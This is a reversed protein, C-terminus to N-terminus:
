TGLYYPSNIQSKRYELCTLPNYVNSLQVCLCKPCNSRFDHYTVICWTSGISSDMEDPLIKETNFLPTHQQVTTTGNTTTFVCHIRQKWRPLCARCTPLYRCKDTRSPINISLAGPRFLRVRPHNLNSPPLLSSLPSLPSSFSFPSLLSSLPSLLLQLFLFLSPIFLSCMGVSQM